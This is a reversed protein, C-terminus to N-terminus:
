VIQPVYICPPGDPRIAPNPQSHNRCSILFFCLQRDFPSHFTDESIVICGLNVHEVSRWKTAATTPRKQGSQYRADAYFRRTDHFKPPSSRECQSNIKSVEVADLPEQSMRFVVTLSTEPVKLLSGKTGVHRLHM